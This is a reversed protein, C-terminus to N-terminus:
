EASKILQPKGDRMELLTLSRNLQNGELTIRGTVGDIPAFKINAGRGEKEPALLALMVRWADIGLAYLREYEASLPEVPRPYAMVAAHDREAFWPMECYKVSDLDVNEVASARPDFTQATAFVPLGQPLYPRAFRATQMDAAIFVVDAKTADGKEFASKLKPGDRTDQSIGGSFAIRAAVTGGLLLWEKEFADHIRKSLAAGSSVMAVNRFGEQQAARAVLRADQDLTLSIHFFNNADAKAPESPTNLALTPLYGAERAVVNAGERTIGGVIAVADEMVAKRYLTALAGADDEALYIRPRFKDKGTVEAAAMFGARLAEAAQNLSKSLLPLILAISKTKEKAPAPTPTTADSKNADPKNADAKTADPKNADPEAAKEVASTPKLPTVVVPSAPPPPTSQAALRTACNVGVCWFLLLVFIRFRAVRWTQLSLQMM